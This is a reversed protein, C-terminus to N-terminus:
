TQELAHDKLKLAHSISKMNWTYQISLFTNQRNNNKHSRRTTKCKQRHLSCSNLIRETSPAWSVNAYMSSFSDCLYGLSVACWLITSTRHRQLHDSKKPLVIWTHWTPMLQLRTRHYTRGPKLTSSQCWRKGNAHRCYETIYILLNLIVYDLASGSKQHSRSLSVELMPTSTFSYPSSKNWQPLSMILVSVICWTQNDSKGNCVSIHSLVNQM